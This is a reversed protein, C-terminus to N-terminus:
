PGDSGIPRLVFTGETSGESSFTVFAFTASHVHECEHTGERRDDFTLDCTVRSAVSGAEGFTVSVTASDHSDRSYTWNRADDLSANIARQASKFHLRESHALLVGSERDHSFVLTYGVLSDPAIPGTTTVTVSCGSLLAALAIPALWVLRKNM